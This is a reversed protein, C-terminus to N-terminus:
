SFTRSTILQPPIKSRDMRSSTGPIPATLLAAIGKRVDDTALDRGGTFQGISPCYVIVIIRAGLFKANEAVNQLLIVPLTDIDTVTPKIGILNFGAPGKSKPQAISIKFDRDLICLDDAGHYGYGSTHAVYATAVRTFIHHLKVECLRLTLEM